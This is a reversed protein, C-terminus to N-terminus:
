SFPNRLRMWFLGGNLAINMRSGTQQRAQISIYEGRQLRIPRNMEVRVNFTPNLQSSARYNAGIESGNKFLFLEGIGSAANAFAQVCGMDYDGDILAYIRGNVLDLMVSPDYVTVNYVLPVFTNNALALPTSTGTVTANPFNMLQQTVSSTTNAGWGLCSPKVWNIPITSTPTRATITGRQAFDKDITPISQDDTWTCNDYTVGAPYGPTLGTHVIQYANRGDASTYISNQGANHVHVNKFSINQVYPTAGTALSSTVHTGSWGPREIRMGDVFINYSRNSVKFAFTSCDAASIDWFYMDHNVGGTNDFGQDVFDVTTGRVQFESCGSFSMGRSFLRRPSPQGTWSASINSIKGGTVRNNSSNLWSVGCAVDDTPASVSIANFDRAGSEIFDSDTVGEMLWGTQGGGNIVRSNRIMAKTLNKSWVGASNGFTVGARVPINNLDFVVSDMSYANLGDIMVMIDRDTGTTAIQKLRMNKLNPVSTPTWRGSIAYTKGGGDVIVGAAGAKNLAAINANSAALTDVDAIAGFAEPPLVLGRWDALPLETDGGAPIFGKDSFNATSVNGLNIDAKGAILSPISAVADNAAQASAAAAAESAEASNESAQAAAVAANLQQTSLSTGAGLNGGDVVVTVQEGNITVVVTESM